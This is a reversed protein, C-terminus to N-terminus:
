AAESQAVDDDIQGIHESIAEIEAVGGHAARSAQMLQVFSAAPLAPSFLFGQAASVGMKRLQQVQSETEIGEAIVGINLGSAMEILSSIIEVGVIGKQLSDVMLKDLKIIDVSIETMNYLGSHGSGVDDLAIEAGLAQIQRIVDKTQSLDNLTVRDSIEFILNGFAINSDKFVHQIDELISEDNLQGAFLNFSIKFDELDAMMPELADRTEEMIFCTVEESLNYTEIMPIFDAPSIVDGNPRHWRALIECGIIKGSALDVIPQLFPLFEGNDLADLIREGENPRYKGLHYAVFMFLISMVFGLGNIVKTTKSSVAEIAADPVSIQVHFPLFDMSKSVRAAVPGGTEIPELFYWPTSAGLSVMATRYRRLDNRVPDIKIIEGPVRAILRRGNSIHRSVLLSLNGQKVKGDGSLSLNIEPMNAQYNPLLGVQRSSQGLDTCVLNGNRDVLGITDVWASSRTAKSYRYRDDNTCSLGHSQALVNLLEVANKTADAARELMLQASIELDEEVSAQMQWQMVSQAAYTLAIAGVVGVVMLGAIKKANRIM